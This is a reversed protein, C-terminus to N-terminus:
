HASPLGAHSCGTLPPSDCLVSTVHPEPSPHPRLAKHTMVLVKIKSRPLPWQLTQNIAQMRGLSVRRKIM